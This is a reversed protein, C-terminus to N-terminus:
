PFLQNAEVNEYRKHWNKAKEIWEGVEDPTLYGKVVDGNDLTQFKNTEEHIIAIEANSSQLMGQPDFDPSNYHECYNGARFQVSILYGNEFTISFGGVRARFSSM